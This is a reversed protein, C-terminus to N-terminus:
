SYINAFGDLGLSHQNKMYVYLFGSSVSFLASKNCEKLWEGFFFGKTNFAYKADLQLPIQFTSLTGVFVGIFNLNLNQYSVM